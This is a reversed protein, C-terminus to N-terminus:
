RGNNDLVVEKYHKLLENRIVEENNYYLDFQEKHIVVRAKDDSVRVRFDRFGLDYLYNESAEVKALKDGTIPEDTAIRTALCAYAPKDWTFLRAIKSYERVSAKTIGCIRLPSLVKLESLAKMGPRDDADDSANTGDVLVTFGRKDAESIITTFIVKKCEYCRLKNNVAVAQCALVDVDITVMQINLEEALRRADEYEFQPQFQSRVYFATVECGCAKAAYLLYASDVGGSFAVALKRHTDFFTKLREEVM